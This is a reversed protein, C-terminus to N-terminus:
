GHDVLLSLDVARVSHTLAGVSIVHVGTEAVARVRDLTMNGSAELVVSSGQVRRAAAAMDGLSMNDLLVAEAGGELAEELEALNRVEIEIRALHNRAAAARQLAPGIGGAAAIHNEKILYGDYLAHRHNAGGGDRVARKELARLLPTTKRTEVIRVPLGAVADVFARTMAAVGSLHQLFNLAVREGTLIARADGDFSALEAGAAFAAGDELADWSSVGADLVDFVHRFVDMGSLVGPAKAVVRARRRLGPPVTAGTTIDGPGIDEALAQRVVGDFLRM